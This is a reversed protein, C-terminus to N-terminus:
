SNVPRDATMVSYSNAYGQCIVDVAITPTGTGSVNAFIYKQFARPLHYKYTTGSSLGTFSTVATGGNGGTANTSLAVSNTTGQALVDIVLIANGPNDVRHVGTVATGSSILGATLKVVRTEEINRPM